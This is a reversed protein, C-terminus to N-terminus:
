GALNLNITLIILSPDGYRDVTDYDRYGLQVRMYVLDRTLPLEVGVAGGFLRKEEVRSYTNSGRLYVMYKNKILFGTEIFAFRSVDPVTGLALGLSFEFVGGGPRVREWKAMGSHDGEITNRALNDNKVYVGTLKYDFRGSYAATLVGMNYKRFSHSYGVDLDRATKSGIDYKFAAFGGLFPSELYFNAQDFDFISERSSNDGHFALVNMSVDVGLQLYYKYGMQLGLMFNWYSLQAKYDSGWRDKEQIIFGSLGGYGSLTFGNFDWTKLQLGLMLMIYMTEDYSGQSYIPSNTIEKPTYLDMKFFFSTFSQDNEDELLELQMPTARSDTESAEPMLFVSLKKGGGFVPLAMDFNKQGAARVRIFYFGDSTKIRKFPQKVIEGNIRIEAATNQPKLEISFTANGKNIKKRIKNIKSQLLKKMKQPLKIGSNLHLASKIAFSSDADKLIEQTAALYMFAIAITKYDDILNASKSYLRISELCLERAKKVWSNDAVIEKKHRKKGGKKAKSKQQFHKRFITDVKLVNEKAQNYDNIDGTASQVPLGNVIGSMDDLTTMQLMDKKLQELQLEFKVARAFTRRKELELKVNQASSLLFHIYTDNFDEASAESRLCLSLAIISILLAVVHKMKFVRITYSIKGWVAQHFKVTDPTDYSAFKTL